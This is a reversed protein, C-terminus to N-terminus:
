KSLQHLLAPSDGHNQGEHRQRLPQLSGEDAGIGRGAPEASWHSNKESGTLKQFDAFTASTFNTAGVRLSKFDYRNGDGRWITNAYLLVGPRPEGGLICQQLDFNAAPTMMVDLGLFTCREARM